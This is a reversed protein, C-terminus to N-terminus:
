RSVFAIPLSVWVSTAEGRNLAPSFRAASAVRLAAEDMTPHGTGQALQTREIAGTADILFWVDARGGIGADRLLSPYEREILTQIEALNRLQPQTTAPPRATGDREPQQATQNPPGPSAPNNRTQQEVAVTGPSSWKGIYPSATPLPETRDPLLADPSGDPAQRMREARAEVDISPTSATVQEIREALSRGGEIPESAALDAMPTPVLGEVEEIAPEYGDAAREVPEAGFSAGAEEIASTIQFRPPVTSSALALGPMRAALAAPGGQAVMPDRTCVAAAVLSCAVIALGGVRRVSRIRAESTILRIRRELFSPPDALALVMVPASRRRGVELLLTGYRRADPARRLVRGDCDLEIAQRLRRFQWWLPLNWPAAALLLLSALVVRTDGARVHEGEHLLMLRRVRSELGIAWEPMLIEPQRVGWAAPGIDPTLAVRVGGVSAHRWHRRDRVISAWSLGMYVLVAATVVVWVVVLVQDLGPGAAAVVGGGSLLAVPSAMPASPIMPILPILASEPVARVSRLSLGFWALMPLAASVAMAGVWAWRGPKGINRLAAEGAVAALGLLNAVVMAYLFWVALESM